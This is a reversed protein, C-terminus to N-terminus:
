RVELESGWADRMWEDMEGATMAEDGAFIGGDRDKSGSSDVTSPAEQSFFQAALAEGAMGDMEFEAGLFNSVMPTGGTPMSGPHFLLDAHAATNTSAAPTAQTASEAPSETDTDSPLSHVTGPGRPINSSPTSRSMTNFDFHDYNMEFQPAHHVAQSPPNAPQATVGAPATGGTLLAKVPSYGSSFLGRLSVPFDSEEPLRGKALSLDMTMALRLYHGPQSALIDTWDSITTTSNAMSLPTPTDLQALTVIHRITESIYDLGDYQPSYTKMAEVLVNLRKQKTDQLLRTSPTKNHSSLKVDIIHLVLPLATCPVASQPLWRALRLQILEQLCETVGSAAQQLEQRNENIKSLGQLNNTMDMSAATVATQLIEHHSLAVCSSHYYMYMMNTYLIVSDHHAHRGRTVDTRPVGNGGFLPFKVSASNYWRRLALKCKRVRVAEEPGIRKGWGPSDDLPFVLMILDTLISCLEVIQSLLQILQVKTEANYVRSREVEEALDAYGLGSHASFDFHSTTIKLSRRFGLPLIRDRIVCSWWLRKLTNQKKLQTPSMSSSIDESLASYHHAEANKAHQIAASLWSSNAKKFAHTFNPAWQSLLLAAQALYVMSSESEFDYLLKCRRYLTARAARLNPFGLSKVTALSVYNCSVFLISQFVLLSMREGSGGFGQNGYMDWFDAESIMPTLPHVHLFYQKVFEDLFEPLPVRLCGQSELYNVDQPMINHLNNVSLFPYYSYTIDSSMAHKHGEAWLPVAPSPGLPNSQGGYNPFMTTSPDARPGQTAAHSRNPFQPLPQASDRREDDVSQPAGAPAGDDPDNEPSSCDYQDSVSPAPEGNLRSRVVGEATLPQRIGHPAYPPHSAQVTGDGEQLRRLRSARDAVVCTENDLYCNMCPAGRQSVDCRVKRARCSLCAKSARKRAKTAPKARNEM